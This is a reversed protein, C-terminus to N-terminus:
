CKKRAKTPNEKSEPTAQDFARSIGEVVDSINNMGIMAGVDNETLTDDEHLLAAWLLARIAKISGSQLKTLAENIDGFKDELEAFANLDFRLTREKDLTIKIPKTRVDHLNSM